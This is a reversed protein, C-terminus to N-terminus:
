YGPNQVINPNLDVEDTPIPYLMREETATYWGSFDFAATNLSPGWDDASSWNALNIYGAEHWRKLDLFRYGEEGALERFREDMIDQMTVTALDAPVASPPNGEPVSNRARERIANIDARALPENGTQLYAEARLLLIDGYRLIRTNNRSCGFASNFDDRKCYKLFEWGNFVAASNPRFTEDIRPDGPEFAALLKDTPVFAPSGWWTWANNFRM